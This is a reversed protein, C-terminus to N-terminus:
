LEKGGKNNNDGVLRIVHNVYPKCKEPNKNM